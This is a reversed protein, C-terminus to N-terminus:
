RGAPQPWANIVCGGLTISQQMMVPAPKGAGPCAVHDLGIYHGVEHNLMYAHYEARSAAAWTPTALNWRDINLVVRDGVRCNWTRHPTAPACLADVTAPSALYITLEPKSGEPVLAFSNGQYGAWGRPDSLVGHLERAVANADLGATTEVKVVYTHVVKTKLSAPLSLTSATYTGSPGITGRPMATSTSSASATRAPSGSGGAMPTTPPSATQTASAATTPRTSTVPAVAAAPTTTTGAEGDIPEAQDPAPGEDAPAAVSPTATDTAMAVLGRVLSAVLWVLLVCGIAIVVKGRRTLRYQPEGDM